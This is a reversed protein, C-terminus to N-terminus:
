TFFKEDRPVNSKKKKKWVKRFFLRRCGSLDEGRKKLKWLSYEVLDIPKHNRRATFM